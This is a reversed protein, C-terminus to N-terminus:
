PILSSRPLAETPVQLITIFQVVLPATVSFVASAAQVYVRVKGVLSPSALWTNVVSPLPTSDHAVADHNDQPDLIDPVVVPPSVSVRSALESEQATACDITVLLVCAFAVVLRDILVQVDARAFMHASTVTDFADEEDIHTLIVHDEVPVHVHSFTVHDLVDNLGATNSFVDAQDAICTEMNSPPLVNILNLVFQPQAQPVFIVDNMVKEFLPSHSTFKLNKSDNCSLDHVMDVACVFLM